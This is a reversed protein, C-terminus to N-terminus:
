FTAIVNALTVYETVNVSDPRGEPAVQFTVRLPTLDDEDEDEIENGSGL